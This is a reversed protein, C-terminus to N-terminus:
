KDEFCYGNKAIGIFYVADWKIFATDSASLDYDRTVKHFLLGLGIVFVRNLLLATLIRVGDNM